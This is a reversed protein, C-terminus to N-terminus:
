IIVKIKIGFFSLKIQMDHMLCQKLGEQFTNVKNLTAIGIDM